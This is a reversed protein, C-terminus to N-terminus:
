SKRDKEINNEHEINTAEIKEKLRQEYLFNTVIKRGEPEGSKNLLSKQHKGQTIESM